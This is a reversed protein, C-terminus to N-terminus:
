TSMTLLSLRPLVMHKTRRDLKAHHSSQVDQVQLESRWRPHLVCLVKDCTYRWAAPLRRHADATGHVREARAVALERGASRRLHQLLDFGRGTLVNTQRHLHGANIGSSGM